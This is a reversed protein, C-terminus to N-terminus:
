QHTEAHETQAEHDCGSFLGHPFEGNWGIEKLGASSSYYAGSIWDKLKRFHTHGPFEEPEEGWTSQSHPYAILNLFEIQQERPVYLFASNYRETCAGDLYALAALFARQTEQTEVKMLLDLFRNVLADKAGSTDTAPILMDSFAILTNNQHEDMFAPKWDSRELEKSADYAAPFERANLIPVAISTGLAGFLTNRLLDRRNM